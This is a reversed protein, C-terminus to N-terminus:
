HLEAQSVYKELKKSPVPKVKFKLALERPIIEHVFKYLEEPKCWPADNFALDTSEHMVFSTDPLMIPKSCEDPNISYLPSVLEHLLKQCAESVPNNNFDEKM